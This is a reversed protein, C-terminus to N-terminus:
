VMRSELWPNEDYKENRRDSETAERDESPLTEDGAHDGDGNTDATDSNQRVDIACVCHNLVLTPQRAAHRESVFSRLGGINM